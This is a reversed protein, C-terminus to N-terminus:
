SYFRGLGILVAASRSNRFMIPVYNRNHEALPPKRPGNLEALHAPELTVSVTERPLQPTPALAPRLTIGLLGLPHHAISETPRSPSMGARAHVAARGIPWARERSFRWCQIM